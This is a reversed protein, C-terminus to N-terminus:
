VCATMDRMDGLVRPVSICVSAFLSHLAQKPSCVERGMYVEIRTYEFCGTLM